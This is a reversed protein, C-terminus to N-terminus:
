GPAHSALKAMLSPFTEGAKGGGKEWTGGDRGIKLDFALRLCEGDTLSFVSNGLPRLATDLAVIAQVPAPGGTAALAAAVLPLRATNRAVTNFAAPLDVHSLGEWPYPAYGNRQALFVGPGNSAALLVEAGNHRLSSMMEAITTGQEITHDAIVYYEGKVGGFAGSTKRQAELHLAYAQRHALAHVSSQDEKRNLYRTDCLSDAIVWDVCTVQSSKMKNKFAEAIDHSLRHGQPANPCGAYRHPYAIHIRGVKRLSTGRKKLEDDLIGALKVGETLSLDIAPHFNTPIELRCPPSALPILTQPPPAVSDSMFRM